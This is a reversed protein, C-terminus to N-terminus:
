LYIWVGQADVDRIKGAVSRTNTAGTKAVTSDDVIYADNGVDALTIQDAGASNDFRWLEGRRVKISVAGDTGNTNDVTEQAVGACFLGTGPRGNVALGALLCVLTGTYIKTAGKMPFAYNTGARRFTNRDATAATM